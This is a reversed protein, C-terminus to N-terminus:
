TTFPAIRPGEFLEFERGEQQAKAKELVDTIFPKVETPFESTQSVTQVSAPAQQKSSGGFLFSM